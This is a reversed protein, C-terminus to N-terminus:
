KVRMDTELFTGLPLISFTDINNEKCYQKATAPCSFVGVVVGNVSLECM